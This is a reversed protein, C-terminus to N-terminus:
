AQGQPKIGMISFLEKDSVRKSPEHSETHNDTSVPVAALKNIARIRENRKEWMLEFLEDTWNELIYEPTLHWEALM